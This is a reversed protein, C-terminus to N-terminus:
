ALGGATFDISAINELSRASAAMFLVGDDGAHANRHDFREELIDDPIGEPFATCAFDETTDVREDPDYPDAAENRPVEIAGRYHKCNQCQRSTARM